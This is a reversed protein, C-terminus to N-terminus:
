PIENDDCMSNGNPVALVEVVAHFDSGENEVAIFRLLHVENGTARCITRSLLRQEKEVVDAVDGSM